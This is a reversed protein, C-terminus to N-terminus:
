MFGSAGVRVIMNDLVRFKHLPEKKQIRAKITAFTLQMDPMFSKHSPNGVHNENRQQLNKM